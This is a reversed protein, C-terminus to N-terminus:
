FERKSKTRQNFAICNYLGDDSRMIDSIKISAVTNRGEKRQEVFIRNDNQAGMLFPQSLSDKQFNIDPAPDGSARCTLVANGGVQTRFIYIKFGSM